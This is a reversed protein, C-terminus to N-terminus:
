AAFCPATRTERDGNPEANKATNAARKIEAEVRGGTARAALACGEGDESTGEANEADSCRRSFAARAVVKAARIAALRRRLDQGPALHFENSRARLAALTQDACWGGVEGLWPFVLHGGLLVVHPREDRMLMLTGSFVVAVVVVDARGLLM